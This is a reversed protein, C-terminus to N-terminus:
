SGRVTLITFSAHPSISSSHPYSLNHFDEYERKTHALQFFIVMKRFFTPIFKPLAFDKGLKTTTKKAFM